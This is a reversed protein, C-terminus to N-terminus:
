QGPLQKQGREDPFLRELLKAQANRMHQGVTAKSCDLEAAIDDYNAGRPNEFYGLAVATRLLERERETLDCLMDDATPGYEAIRDLALAMDQRSSEFAASFEEEPGILTIRFDHDDTFRVPPDVLLRHEDLLAFQRTIADNPLHHQYVYLSERRESFQWGLIEPWPDSAGPPLHEALLAELQERPGDYEYLALLSEDALLRVNHIAARTIAPAETLVRDLWGFWERDAGMRISATRM